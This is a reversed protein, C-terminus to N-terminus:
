RHDNCEYAKADKLERVASRLASLDPAEAVGAAVSNKLAAVRESLRQM